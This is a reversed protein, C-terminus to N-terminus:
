AIRNFKEFAPRPSRDFITAPDGHGLTSIFNTTVNPTDAFFAADVKAADFGSM